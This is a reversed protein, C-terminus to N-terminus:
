KEVEAPKRGKKAGVGKLAQSKIAPLLDGLYPGFKKIASKGAPTSCFDALAGLEDATFHKVATQKMTKQLAAMDVNKSLLEKAIQRKDPPLSKLAKETLEDLMDSIPMAEVYREAEKNRNAPTDEIALVTTCALVALGVVCLARRM